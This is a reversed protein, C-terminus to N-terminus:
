DPFPSSEGPPLGVQVANLTMSVMSYYGITCILEVVGPLGLADVARRYTEDAIRRTEYMEMCFAYVIEEDEHQFSPRKKEAIAAILAENLGAKKGLAAHAWFEFEAKWYRGTILIGLESLRNPLSSKFRIFESLGRARRALEPSQLWANFPGVVRGHPGAVIEDYVERQADSMSEPDLMPIRSM